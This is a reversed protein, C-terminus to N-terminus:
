RDFLVRPMAEPASLTVPGGVGPIVERMAGGKGPAIRRM